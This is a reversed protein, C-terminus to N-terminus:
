RQDTNGSAFVKVKWCRFLGRDVYDALRNVSRVKSSLITVFINLFLIIDLLKLITTFQPCIACFWVLGRLFSHTHFKRHNCSAPSSEILHHSNNITESSLLEAVRFKIITSM